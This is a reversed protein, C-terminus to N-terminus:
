PNIEDIIQRQRNEKYFVRWQAKFWRFPSGAQSSISLRVDHPDTTEWFVQGISSLQTGTEIEVEYHDRVIGAPLLGKQYTSWDVNVNSLPAAMTNLHLRFDSQNDPNTWREQKIGTLVPFSNHQTTQFSSREYGDSSGGVTDEWEQWKCLSDNKHTLTGSGTLVEGVTDQWYDTGPFLDAKHEFSGGRAFVSCELTGGFIYRIIRDAIFSSVENLESFETHGYDGYYVVDAGDAYQCSIPVITDDMNRPLADIGNVDFQGSIPSSESSIFAMWHKNTAVWLGDKSSDYNVLSELVGKNNL